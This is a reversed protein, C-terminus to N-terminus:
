SDVLGAARHADTPEQSAQMHLVRGNRFTFTWWLATDLVVGSHRGRAHIRGAVLLSGKAEDSARFEPRFEAWHSFVDTFWRHVGEHGRYVAGEVQGLLPSVESDEDFLELIGPLDKTRWRDFGRRVIELNARTSPDTKGM